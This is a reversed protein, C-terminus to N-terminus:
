ELKPTRGQESVTPLPRASSRESALQERELKRNIAKRYAVTLAREVVIPDHRSQLQALGAQVCRDAFEPVEAFKSVAAAFARGDRHALIGGQGVFERLYTEDTAVV